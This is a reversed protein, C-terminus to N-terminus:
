GVLATIEEPTLGLLSLKAFASNKIDQFKQEKQAELSELEVLKAQAAELDYEVINDDKDYAVGDRITVIAPNLAYINDHLYVM